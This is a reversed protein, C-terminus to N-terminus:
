AGVRRVHGGRRRAARALGVKAGSSREPRDDSFAAAFLRVTPYRYVDTLEVKDAIVDALRRHLRVVLLSHGGVDFFNDDVGFGKSGLVEEWLELVVRELEGAPPTAPASSSEQSAVVDIAPLHARDIKGNPTRPLNGVVVFTAPIMVAPLEERLSERAAAVDFRGTETVVWAVLRQDDSAGDSGPVTVLEAVCERVGALTGVCTEIEGLEIRHGRVKVQHDLRGHYELLPSGDEGRHWRVRDGTDYMRASGGRFPDPVFREATLEPRGHYGRVVGRGGIWLRGIVGPPLPRREEDLVYVQTNAIPSGIPVTELPGDLVWTTSWITTETPGYMNTVRGSRSRSRLARALAVPFAEGGIFVQEIGALADRSGDDQSLIQALSPTCQLHTVGWRRVQEGFRDLGSRGDNGDDVRERAARPPTNTAIRLEDLRALNALVEDTPV